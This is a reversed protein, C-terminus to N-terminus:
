HLEAECVSGRTGSRGQGICYIRRKNDFEKDKSASSRSKHKGVHNLKRPNLMKTLYSPVIKKKDNLLFVVYNM